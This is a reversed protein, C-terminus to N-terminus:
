GSSPVTAIKAKSSTRGSIRCYKTLTFQFCVDAVVRFERRLLRLSHPPAGLSAGSEKNIANSPKPLPVQSDPLM